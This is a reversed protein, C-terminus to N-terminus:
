LTTLNRKWNYSQSVCGSCVKLKFSTTTYDSYSAELSSQSHIYANNQQLQWSLFVFNICCYDVNRKEDSNEVYLQGYNIVKKCGLKCKFMKINNFFLNCSHHAWLLAVSLIVVDYHCNVINDNNGKSHNSTKCSLNREPFRILKNNFLLLHNLKGYNEKRWIGTIENELINQCTKYGFVM